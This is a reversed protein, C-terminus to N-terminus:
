RIDASVMSRTIPCYYFADVAAGSEKLLNNMYNHLAEVDAETYYGRAVGAQNTM